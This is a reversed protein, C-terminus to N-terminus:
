DQELEIEKSEVYIMGSECDRRVVLGLELLMRLFSRNNQYTNIRISYYYSGPSWTNKQLYKSVVHKLGKSKDTEFAKNKPASYEKVLKNFVTEPLSFRKNYNKIMFKLYQEDNGKFSATEETLTIYWDTNECVIFTKLDSEESGICVLIYAGATSFEGYRRNLIDESPADQSIAISSFVMIIGFVLYFIKKM